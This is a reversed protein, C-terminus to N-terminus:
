KAKPPVLKLTVSIDASISTYPVEQFRGTARLAEVFAIAQEVNGAKAVLRVQSADVTVSTLLVGPPLTGQLLEVMETVQGWPITIAKFDRIAAQLQTSRDLETQRQTM